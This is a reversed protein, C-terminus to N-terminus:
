PGKTTIQQAKAETSVAAIATAPAATASAPGADPADLRQLEFIAIKQPKADELVTFDEKHLSMLDKGSKDKAFVNLVVLRTNSKFTAQQAYGAAILLIPCFFRKM